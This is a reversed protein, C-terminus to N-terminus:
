RRDRSDKHLAAASSCSRNSKRDVFFDSIQRSNFNGVLSLQIAIEAFLKLEDKSFKTQENSIVFTVIYNSRNLKKNSM